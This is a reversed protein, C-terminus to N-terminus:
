TASIPTGDAYQTEYISGEIPLIQNNDYGLITSWNTASQYSAVMAQPVYLTGGTKGSAFCTGNFANINGLASVSAGRIILTDLSSDGNFTLANASAVNTPAYLDVVKLATCSQIARTLTGTFAPLVLYKLATSGTILWSGATKLKSLTVNELASCKEFFCDGVSELAPFIATKLSKCDMFQRGGYNGGGTNFNIVGTVNPANISTIATGAFAFPVLTKCSLEIDGSIGARTVVSGNRVGYAIDDGSFGSPVNVAIQIAAYNTVDETTTGNETITIEKTGTPTIGGSEPKVYEVGIDAECFNGATRLTKRGSDDLEAIIAGKYTLTVDAM